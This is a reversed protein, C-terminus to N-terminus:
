GVDVLREDSTHLAKSKTPTGTVSDAGVGNGFNAASLRRIADLDIGDDDDDDDDYDDHTESSGIRGDLVDDVFDSVWGVITEGTMWISEGIESWDFQKGLSSESLDAENDDDSQFRKRVEKMLTGISRRLFKYGNIGQMMLIERGKSLILEHLSPSGLDSDDDLFLQDIQDLGKSSGDLYDNLGETSSRTTEMRTTKWQSSAEDSASLLAKLEETSGVKRDDTEGEGVFGMSLPFRAEQYSSELPIGMEKEIRDRFLMYLLEMDSVQRRSPQYVGWPSGSYEIDKSLADSTTDHHITQSKKDYGEDGQKEPEQQQQQAPQSM